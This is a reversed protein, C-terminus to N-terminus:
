RKRYGGKIAHRITGCITKLVWWIPTIVPVARM